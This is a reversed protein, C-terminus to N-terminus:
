GATTSPMRDYLKSFILSKHDRRALVTEEGGKTQQRGKKGGLHLFSLFQDHQVGFLEDM